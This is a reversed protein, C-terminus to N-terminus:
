NGVETAMNWYVVDQPNSPVLGMGVMANYLNVDEPDAPDLMARRIKQDREMIRASEKKGVRPAPPDPTAMQAVAGIEAATTSLEIQRDLVAARFLDDRRERAVRALAYVALSAVVMALSAVAGLVIIATEM